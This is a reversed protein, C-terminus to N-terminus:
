KLVGDSSKSFELVRSCVLLVSFVSSCKYLGNLRFLVGKKDKLHEVESVLVNNIRLSHSPM